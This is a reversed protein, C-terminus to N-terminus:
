YRPGTRGSQLIPEGLSVLKEETDVRSLVPLYLLNCQTWLAALPWEVWLWSPFKYEMCVAEAVEKLDVWRHM